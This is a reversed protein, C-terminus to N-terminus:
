DGDLGKQSGAMFDRDEIVQRGAVAASHGVSCRELDAAVAVDRCHGGKQLSIPDVGDQM